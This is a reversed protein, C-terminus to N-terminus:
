QKSKNFQGKEKKIEFMDEEPDQKDQDDDEEYYEYENEDDSDTLDMTVEKKKENRSYVSILNDKTFYADSKQENGNNLPIGSDQHQLVSQSSEQKQLDNFDALPNIEAGKNQDNLRPSNTSGNQHGSNM